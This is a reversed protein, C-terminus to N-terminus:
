VGNGDNGLDAMGTIDTGVYNGAVTNFRPPGANQIWIAIGADGNGSVINRELEIRSGTQTPASSTKARM